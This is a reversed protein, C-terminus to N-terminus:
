KTDKTTAEVPWRNFHLGKAIEFLVKGSITMSRRVCVDSWQKAQDGYLTELNTADDCESVVCVRPTNCDFEIRSKYVLPGVENLSRFSDLMNVLVDGIKNGDDDALPYYARAAAVADKAPVDALLALLLMVVHLSNLKAIKTGRSVPLIGAENLKRYHGRVTAYPIGTLKPLYEILESAAIM